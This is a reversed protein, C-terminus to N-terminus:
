EGMAYAADGINFTSIATMSNLYPYDTGNSRESVVTPSAPNTIDAILIKSSASITVVYTKGQIQIPSAGLISHIASYNAHTSTTNFVISPSEPNDMNLITFGHDKNSAVLAYTSGDIQVTEIHFPDTLHPYQVPDAIPSEPAILLTSSVNTLSLQPLEQVHVARIINAPNGAFDPANYEIHYTGVNSTTVTGTGTVDKIGYSLDYSIAGLDVYPLGLGSITNNDGYLYLLPPVTDIIINAGMLNEQTIRSAYDTSNIIFIDFTLNGNTDSQTIIKSLTTIGNSTHNTFNEDGLISGTINTIDSGDTILTINVQDGVKAYSNNSNNSHVTLGTINLLHYDVVTVTLNVSEGLNGAGDPGATYTYIASSGLISTDLTINSTVDYTSNYNPDGDTATANPILDTTRNQLLYYETIDGNISITPAITDVFVNSDTINEQTVTLMVTQNNEIAINFTAYKEIVTNNSISITANIENTSNTVTLSLTDNLIEVDHAIIVDNVVLRVTLNDGIKAYSANNVNTSTVSLTQVEIPPLVAVIVNRTINQAENGAFDPSASYTLTYNGERTIDVDGMPPINKSGYSLDYVTANADTYTRNLISITNNKGNLTIIPSITDIIINSNQLDDQTIRAAYGSSNTVLIDFTLNGNTDNQTIIKEIFTTGSSYPSSTFDDGGLITGDVDEVAGITKLVIEIEDGAKAYSDNVLNNSSVTLSTVNFLNYDIVTVTRNISEGPNGAADDYATYTYNVTSGVMSTNLIGVKIKSYDDASYGPSGDYATANPDNFTTSLLVTYDADGNLEITPSITDVFVNPGTLNAETLNVTVGLYNTISATISANMEISDTPITVSANITNLGITDTSANLNLIQVMNKSQDITDNVVIQISVTDGAKAYSSNTNNSTISFPTQTTKEHELKIIQIGSSNRAAILTYAVGDIQVAKLTQPRDLQVYETGHTIHSVPRPSEPNTIDIIQVSDANVASLLAYTSDEVNIATVDHPALLAPYETGHRVTSVPFPLAPHTVDIIQM